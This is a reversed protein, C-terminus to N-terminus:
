QLNSQKSLVLWDCQLDLISFRKFHCTFWDAYRLFLPLKVTLMIITLTFNSFTPSDVILKFQLLRVCIFLKYEAKVCCSKM